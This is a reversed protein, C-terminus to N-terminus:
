VTREPQKESKVAGNARRRQKGIMLGVQGV